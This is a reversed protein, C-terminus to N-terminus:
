KAGFDCRGTYNFTPNADADKGTGVVHLTCQVRPGAIHDFLYVSGNEAGTKLNAHFSFRGDHIMVPESGAISGSFVQDGTNVLTNNATDFTSTVHYLVRGILDGKLEVTETSKQIMGTPTDKKSHIIAGNLLDTGSGAVQVSRVKSDPGEGAFTVGNCLSICGLSLTGLWRILGASTNFMVLETSHLLHNCPQFAFYGFVSDQGLHCGCSPEDHGAKAWRSGDPSGSLCYAFKIRAGGVSRSPEQFAM